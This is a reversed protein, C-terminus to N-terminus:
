SEQGSVSQIKKLLGDLCANTSHRVRNKYYTTGIRASERRFTECIRFVVDLGLHKKLCHGRLLPLTPRICERMVRKALVRDVARPVHHKGVTLGVRVKGVQGTVRARVSVAERRFSLQAVSFRIVLGFDDSRLIRASRPFRFRVQKGNDLLKQADPM